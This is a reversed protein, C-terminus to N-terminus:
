RGLLSDLIRRIRPSVDGPDAAGGLSRLRSGSDALERVVDEETAGRLLSRYASALVIMTELKRRSEPAVNPRAELGVLLKRARELEQEPDASKLCAALDIADLEPLAAPTELPPPPKKPPEPEPV